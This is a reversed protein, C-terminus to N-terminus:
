PRLFLYKELPTGVDAMSKDIRFEHGDVNSYAEVLRDTQDFDLVVSRDHLM